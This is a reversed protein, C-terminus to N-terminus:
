YERTRPYLCSFRTAGVNERDRRTNQLGLRLIEVDTIPEHHVLVCAGFPQREIFQRADGREARVCQWGAELSLKHGRTMINRACPWEREGVANLPAVQFDIGVCSEDLQQVMPAHFIA